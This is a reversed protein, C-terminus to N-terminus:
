GQGASRSGVYHHSNWSPGYRSTHFAERAWTATVVIDADRLAAVLADSPEIEIGLRSSNRTAFERARDASIDYVRARTIPRVLLLMELQLVGQVGVGVIAVTRANRCALVDAAIAGALGTRVATLFGSEM